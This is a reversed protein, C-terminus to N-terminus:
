RGLWGGDVALIQGQVYDSAASSLFVVAGGLDAETGWRGSPIRNRIDQYHRESALLNANMDTQMYGPAIANVNIGHPAWENALAKTLQGIAGKSATYAAAKLGGQFTLLSGINVIKGYKRSIMPKAFIQSLLFVAKLNVNMIEDWDSGPFEVAWHLRQIGANNVLIDIPGVADLVEQAVRRVDDEKSLDATVCVCERGLEQIAAILDQSYSKQVCVVDAGAKALALAMGHGLGRSAGTIVARKGNLDFLDM